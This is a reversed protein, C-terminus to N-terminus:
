GICSPRVISESLLLRPRVVRNTENKQLRDRDIERIYHIINGFRVSV